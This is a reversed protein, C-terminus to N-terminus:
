ASLGKNFKKGEEDSGSIRKIIEDENICLKWNQLTMKRDTNNYVVKKKDKGRACRTKGM